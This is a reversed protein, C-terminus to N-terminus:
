CSNGSVLSSLSLSGTKRAAEEGRWQGRESLAMVANDEMMKPGLERAEIQRRRECKHGIRSTSM